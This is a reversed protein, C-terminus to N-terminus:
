SKSNIKSVIGEAAGGGFYFMVITLMIEGIYFESMTKRIEESNGLDFVNIILTGVFCSLFVFTFMFAIVRQAIKFPAYANLLETKAKTKAEIEEIDSTHFYDILDIGKKVVDSSGFISKFIGFM